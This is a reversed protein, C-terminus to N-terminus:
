RHNGCYCSWGYSPREHVERAYALAQEFVALPGRVSERKQSIHCEWREGLTERDIRYWYADGFWGRMGKRDVQWLGFTRPVIGTSTLTSM